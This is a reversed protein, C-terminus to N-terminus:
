ITNLILCLHLIPSVLIHAGQDGAVISRKNACMKLSVKESVDEDSNAARWQRRQSQVPPTDTIFDDSSDLNANSAM